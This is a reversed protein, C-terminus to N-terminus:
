RAIKQLHHIVVSTKAHLEKLDTTQGTPAFRSENCLALLGKLSSLLEPTLRSGLEREILQEEIQGAPVRMLYALQEHLLRTLIDLFEAKNQHKVAAELGATSEKFLAQLKGRKQHLPDRNRSDSRRRWVWAGLLFLFPIVNMAALWRLDIKYISAVTTAGLRPRIHALEGAVGSQAAENLSNSSNGSLVPAPTASSGTVNLEMPSSSLTRYDNLQPDFFSFNFAPLQKIEPHNPSIVQEFTKSGALGFLDTKEVKSSPPYSKFQNWQPQEPLTVGDLSGTGSIRVKVTIPDGVALNTPGAIFIMNFQGIAGQFGPPRNKQPLPLVNVGVPACTLTVSKQGKPRGFFDRGGVLLKIPFKAPGVQLKGARTATVPFKFVALNYILGNIQVRKQEPQDAFNGISFGDGEVIASKDVAVDNYFLQLEAPFTEGVFYESRALNLRIFAQKQDAADIPPPSDTVKLVMPQTTLIQGELDVTLAPITYNGAKKASVSFTFTLSVSTEGNVSSFSNERGVAEISLEPDSHFSPLGKPNFGECTLRMTASEGVGIVNRDITATISAAQSLMPFLSFCFIFVLSWFSGPAAPPVKFHFGRLIEMRHNQCGIKGETRFRQLGQNEGM